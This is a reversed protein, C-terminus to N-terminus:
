EFCCFVFTTNVFIICLFIAILHHGLRWTTNYSVERIKTKKKKRKKGEIDPEFIYYPWILKLCKHVLNQLFVDIISTLLLGVGTKGSCSSGVRKLKLLCSWKTPHIWLSDLWTRTDVIDCSRPAKDSSMLDDSLQVDLYLTLVFRVISPWVAIHIFHLPFCSSRLSVNVATEISQGNNMWILAFSLNNADLKCSHCRKQEINSASYSELCRVMGLFECLNWLKMDDRGGLQYELCVLTKVSVWLAAICEVEAEADLLLAAVQYTSRAPSPSPFDATIRLHYQCFCGSDWGTIAAAM